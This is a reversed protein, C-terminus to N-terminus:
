KNKQFLRFFNMLYHILRFLTYNLALSRLSRLSCVTTSEDLNKDIYIYITVLIRRLIRAVVKVSLNRFIVRSPSRGPHAVGSGILRPLEVRERESDM